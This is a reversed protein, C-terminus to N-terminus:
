LVRASTNHLENLQPRVELRIISLFPWTISTKKFFCDKGVLLLASSGSATVLSTWLPCAQSHSLPHNRQQGQQVTSVQFTNVKHSHMDAHTGANNLYAYINWHSLRTPEYELLVNVGWNHYTSQLVICTYRTCLVYTYMYYLRLGKVPTTCCNLVCM